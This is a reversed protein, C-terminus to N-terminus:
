CKIKNKEHRAVVKAIVWLIVLCVNLGYCRWFHQWPCLPTQSGIIKRDLMFFRILRHFTQDHCCVSKSKFTLVTTIFSTHIGPISSASTQHDQRRGREIYLCKTKKRFDIPWGLWTERQTGVARRPAAQRKLDFGRGTWTAALPGLWRTHLVGILLYLLVAAHIHKSSGLLAKTSRYNTPCFM